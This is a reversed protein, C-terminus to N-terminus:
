WGGRRIAFPAHVPCALALFETMSGCIPRTVLRLEGFDARLRRPLPRYRHHSRLSRPRDRAPSLKLDPISEAGIGPGFLRELARPSTTPPRLGDLEGAALDATLLELLLGRDLVPLRTM